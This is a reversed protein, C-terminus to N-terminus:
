LVSLASGASWNLLDSLCRGFKAVYIQELIDYSNEGETKHVKLVMQIFYLMSCKQLTLIM